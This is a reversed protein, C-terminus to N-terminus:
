SSRIKARQKTSGLAAAEEEEEEKIRREKLNQAM